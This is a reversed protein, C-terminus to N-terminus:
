KDTRTRTAHYCCCFWFQWCNSALKQENWITRLCRNILVNEPFLFRSLNFSFFFVPVFGCSIHSLMPIFESNNIHHFGIYLKCKPIKMHPSFRTRHFYPFWNLLERNLLHLIIHFQIAFCLSLRINRRLVSLYLSFCGRCSIQTCFLVCPYHICYRAADVKAHLNRTPFSSVMSFQKWFAAM